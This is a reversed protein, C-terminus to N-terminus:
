CPRHGMFRFEETLALLEADSKAEMEAEVANIEEVRRLHRGVERDNPDGFVKLLFSM